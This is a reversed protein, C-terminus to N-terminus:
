RQSRATHRYPQELMLVALATAFVRGGTQREYTGEPNWSGLACGEDQQHKLLQPVLAKSWNRYANKSSHFTALTGYWWQYLSLNGTQVQRKGQGPVDVDIFRLAWVPSERGILGLHDRHRSSSTDEHLLCRIAAALHGNTTTPTYGYARGNLLYALRGSNEELSDLFRDVGAALDDPLEVGVDRAAVLAQVVLATFPVDSGPRGPAVYGWGGDEQRLDLLRGVGIEVPDRFRGQRELAEAEAFVQTALVYGWRTRTQQLYAFAREVFPGYKDGAAGPLHGHGLFALTALASIADDFPCPAEEGHQGKGVGTCRPEGSCREAFGDADWGGDRAQHRALWDLGLGVAQESKTSQIVGRLARKRGEPSRPGILPPADNAQLTTVLLLLSFKMFM